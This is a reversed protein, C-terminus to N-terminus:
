GNGEKAPPKATTSEAVPTPGNPQGYGPRVFVRATFQIRKDSPNTSQEITGVDVKTFLEGHDLQGFYRHLALADDTVGSLKVVVRTKDWQERLATLDHESPDGKKAASEGLSEAHQPMSGAGTIPERVISLEKLEVEDPLPKVVAALIQSRPWPHRLYTCLEAQKDATQLLQQLQALRKTEQKANEYSPLLETLQQDSLIRLHQQYIAAFGIAALFAVVVGVRLTVNKRQVGAERYAAPLFDIECSLKIPANM